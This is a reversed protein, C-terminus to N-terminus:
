FQEEVFICLLLTLGPGVCVTNPAMKTAIVQFFIVVNVLTNTMNHIQKM